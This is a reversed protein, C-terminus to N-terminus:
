LTTLSMLDEDALQMTALLYSVNTCLLRYYNHKRWYCEFILQHLTSHFRSIEFCQLSKGCNMKVHDSSTLM